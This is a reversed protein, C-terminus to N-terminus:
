NKEKDYSRRIEKAIFELRDALDLGNLADTAQISFGAGQPGIVAVMVADANTIERIATCFVDYKGPGLPM